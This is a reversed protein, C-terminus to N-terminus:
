IYILLLNGLYKGRRCLWHLPTMYNKPDTYNPDAGLELLRIANPTFFYKDKCYEYLIKSARANYVKNDPLQLTYDGSRISHLTCTWKVIFNEVLLLFSRSPQDADEEGEFFDYMDDGKKKRDDENDDDADDNSERSITPAIPNSRKKTRLGTEVDLEGKIADKLASNEAM